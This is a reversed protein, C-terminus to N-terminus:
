INISKCITKKIYCCLKIISKKNRKFKEYKQYLDFFFYM